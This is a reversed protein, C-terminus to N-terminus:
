DVVEYNLVGKKNTITIKLNKDFKEGTKPNELNEEIYGKEELFGLTIPPELSEGDNTPLLAINESAYNRAANLINEIQAEYLKQKSKKINTNVVPYIITALLALIVLVALIEVLTFGKQKM